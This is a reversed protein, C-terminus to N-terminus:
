RNYVENKNNDEYKRTINEEEIVNGDADLSVYKYESINDAEITDSFVIIYHYLSIIYNNIYIQCLSIIIKYM